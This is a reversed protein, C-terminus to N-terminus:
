RARHTAMASCRWQKLHISPVGPPLFLTFFHLGHKALATLVHDYFGVGTRITSRRTGDLFPLFPEHATFRSGHM